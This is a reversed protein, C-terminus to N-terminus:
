KVWEGMAGEKLVDIMDYLTKPDKADVKRKLFGVADVTGEAYISRGCVNHQFEFSVTGDASTLRYTHFAHGLLHEEPVGMKGTQSEVDRVLEIDNLDFGCGLENFSAVIAKATGSTDKKSSQHSETVTLTYGEFAGPFQEAMLKMAAQFAVVQKGMQPAIVAYNGSEKVERLLRERDGGTTGMVFPVGHKVYLAANSNVSDPQTYDVIIFGPYERKARELTEGADEVGVDVGRVETGLVDTTAATARKTLAYPVLEFGARKVVSCATAHGMKGSVGCVMVRTPAGDASARTAVIARRRTRMAGRSAPRARAVRSARARELTAVRMGRRRADGDGDDHAAGRARSRDISRDIARARSRRDLTSARADVRARPDRARADVRPARRTSGPHTRADRSVVVRAVAALSALRSPVRALVDNSRM